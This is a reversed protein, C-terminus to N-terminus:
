LYNPFEIKFKTGIDPKSHVEIKGKLRDVTEKVIYLGLGSGDSSETARYFMDFIKDIYKDSIGIGNDEVTMSFVDSHVSADVKIHPRYRSTNKRYKISNSLLNNLIVFLRNKDTYLPSQQDIHIEKEVELAGDLYKLKDWVEDLLESFNIPENNVELRNNKSYNIIEIITADLKNVSQEVRQIYQPMLDFNSKNIDLNALNVLGIISKLPARLDHSARYVFKDLEENIKVLERNQEELNKYMRKKEQEAEYKDLASIISMPLRALKDKLIYDNAGNHICQVAFEDSVSGTVLIFPKNSDFDKRLIRLAETSDFDPLNHDSLIVDPQFEKLAKIYEEKREIRISNYKIGGKRITRDVLMYDYENDELLLIRLPLNNM